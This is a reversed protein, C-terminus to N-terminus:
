FTRGIGLYFKMKRSSIGTNEVPWAVDFWLPGVPTSWRVGAGLGISLELDAESWSEWVQGIDAFVAARLPGYVPIRLEENLIFLAGGGAPVLSGDIGYTVPGVSNLDFGRISSQGGAFFKAERDLNTGKLPESVGVRLTQLWSAGKFPTFVFGFNTLWSVYELDSGISGSSWGLDSTLSYGARPDFLNDYRDVVTRLGLVGIKLKIDFPFFDDPVKEYTHTDTWRYYLGISTGRQLAYQAELSALVEDQELLDPEDPADGIRYGLTSILSIRSGPATPLSGVMFLRKEISDFSGRLNLTVGRHFLNGDVLGFRGQMGRETSWGGGVEARWRKRKVVDIEVDVTSDGRDVTRVDVRDIPAFNAIRSASGDLDADTLLEGEEILLGKRLVRDSIGRSGTFTISNVTHQQGAALDIMVVWAQGDEYLTNRVRAERYGARQYTRRVARTEGDIVSRDLPMGPRLGFTETELVGLPDSGVLVIEGIAARPGPTVQIRVLPAGSEVPDVWVRDVRAELYGDAALLKEISRGVRGPDNVALALATKSGLLERIALSSEPSVGDIAPGNFSSKEGRDVEVEISSESRSVTVRAALFGEAVLHNRVM